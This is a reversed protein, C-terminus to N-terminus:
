EPDPRLRSGPIWAAVDPVSRQLRPRCYIHQPMSEPNRAFGPGPIVFVIAIKGTM